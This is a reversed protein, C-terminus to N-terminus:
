KLKVVTRNIQWDKFSIFSNRQAIENAAFHVFILCEPLYTESEEEGDLTLDGDFTCDGDLMSESGLGASAAAGTGWRSFNPLATVAGTAELAYLV